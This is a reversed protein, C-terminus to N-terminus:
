HSCAYLAELIDIDTLPNLHLHNLYAQYAKQQATIQDKVKSIEKTLNQSRNSWTKYVNDVAKELKKIGRELRDIFIEVWDLVKDSDSGSAFATGSAFANGSAYAHGRSNIHGNKLIQETQVHNFIIAGAPINVFEAGNEGVTYWRGTKPDCKYKTSESCWCSKERM